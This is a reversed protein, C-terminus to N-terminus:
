SGARYKGARHARSLVKGGDDTGLLARRIRGHRDLRTAAATAHTRSAPASGAEENCKLHIVVDGVAPNLPLDTHGPQPSAKQKGGRRADSQRGVADLKQEGLRQRRPRRCLRPKAAEPVLLKVLGQIDLNQVMAGALSSLQDQREGRACGIRASVARASGGRRRRLHQVGQCRLHGM